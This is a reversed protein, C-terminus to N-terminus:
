DPYMGQSKYLAAAEPSKLFKILANAANTDTATTSIGVGFATVNDLDGPFVGVLETGSILESTQMVGLEADGAVLLDASYKGPPAFKTKAKMQEAIGMRELLKAFYVSSAAGAAPDGTAISKAALLARKFAEPSSIEPKPAGAKVAIAMRTSALAAVSSPAIKGDKALTYIGARTLVAVDAAEGSQISQVLQAALGYTIAVKNGSSKELKPALEDLVNKFAITSFLKTDAASAFAGQALLGVAIAIIRIIHVSM